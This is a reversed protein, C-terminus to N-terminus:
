AMMTRDESFCGTQGQQRARIVEAGSNYTEHLLILFIDKQNGQSISPIGESVYEPPASDRIKRIDLGPPNELVREFLDM